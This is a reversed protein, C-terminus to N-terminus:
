KFGVVNGLINNASQNGAGWKARRQHLDLQVNINRSRDFLYVSWEDRRREAFRFIVRGQNNYEHWQSGVKRFVSAPNGTNGVQVQTICYANRRGQTTCPKVPQHTTTKTPVNAPKVNQFEYITDSRGSKSEIRVRGNGFLFISVVGNSDESRLIHQKFGNTSENNMTALAIKEGAAFAAAAAAAALPGCKMCAVASVAAITVPLVIQGAQEMGDIFDRFNNPATFYVRADGQYGWVVLWWDKGSTGFGTNYRVRYNSDTTAGNPVRRWTKRSKYVDSYKHVVTVFELARGTQNVVQVPAERRTKAHASFSVCIIALAVLQILCKNKM